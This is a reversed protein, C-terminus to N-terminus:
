DSVRDHPLAEEASWVFLGLNFLETPQIASAASLQMTSAAKLAAQLVPALETRM